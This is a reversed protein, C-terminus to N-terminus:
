FRQTVSSASLTWDTGANLAQPTVYPSYPGANAPGFRRNLSSQYHPQGTNKAHDLVQPSPAHNAAFSPSGDSTSNAAQQRAFFSENRSATGLKPAGNGVDSHDNGAPNGFNVPAAHRNLSHISNNM